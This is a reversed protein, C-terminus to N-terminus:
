HALQLFSLYFTVTNFYEIWSVSLTLCLSLCLSFCRYPISETWLPICDPSVTGVLGQSNEDGSPKHPKREKKKKKKSLWVGQFLFGESLIIPVSPCQPKLCVYPCLWIQKGCLRRQQCVLCLLSVRATNMPAQNFAEYMQFGSPVSCLCYSFVNNQVSNGYLM